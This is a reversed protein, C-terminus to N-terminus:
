MVLRATQALFSSRTAGHTRAYEGIRSLLLPPVTINIKETPGVCVLSRIKQLLFM